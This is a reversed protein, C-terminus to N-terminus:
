IEIHRKRLEYCTLIVERELEGARAGAAHQMSGQMCFLYAVERSSYTRVKINNGNNGLRNFIKRM